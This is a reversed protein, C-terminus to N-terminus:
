RGPNQTIQGALLEAVLRSGAPSPHTRDAALTGPTEPDLAEEMDIFHVGPRAAAHTAIRRELEDLAPRCAGFSSRPAQYYGAWLVQAGSARARAILAPITGTEGSPSILADIQAECGGCGCSSALDNAGGNVVVWNWRGDGLQRPIDLGALAAVRGPQLRAGPTARKVVERGLATGLQSGVDQGGFRNWALVSDGIMLIDASQRSPAGGCSALLLLLPLLLLLRM